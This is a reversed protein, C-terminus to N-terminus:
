SMGALVLRDPIRTGAEVANDVHECVASTTSNYGLDRLSNILTQGLFLPVTSRDKLARNVVAKGGKPASAGWQPAFDQLTTEPTNEPTEAPIKQESM